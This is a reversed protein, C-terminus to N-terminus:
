MADNALDFMSRQSSRVPKQENKGDLHVTGDGTKQKRLTEEIKTNRGKVEGEQSAAAVAQDFNQANMVLQLTAPSIKGLIADDVIEFLTRFAGDVEEDTWGNEKQANDLDTLSQNLNSKYLEENENEKKVRDLYEKNAKAMQEQREPDNVADAIETGYRKVLAVVPDGDKWDALFSAARPDTGVFDNLEDERAKYDGLRKEYDDYDDNIQSAYDEDEAFQKDPYKESIRKHLKDKKSMPPEAPLGEIPTTNDAM